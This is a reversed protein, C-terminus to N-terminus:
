RVIATPFEVTVVSFYNLGSERRMTRNSLRSTLNLLLRDNMPPLASGFSTLKPKPAMCHPQHSHGSWGDRM